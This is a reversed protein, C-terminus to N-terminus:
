SDLAGWEQVSMRKFQQYNILFMLPSIDCLYWELEELQLKLPLIKEKEAPGTMALIERKNVKFDCLVAEGTIEDYRGDLSISDCELFFLNFPGCWGWVSAPWLNKKGGIPNRSEGTVSLGECDKSHPKYWM